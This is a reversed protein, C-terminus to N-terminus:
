NAILNNCIRSRTTRVYRGLAPSPPSANVSATIADAWLGQANLYDVVALNIEVPTRGEQTLRATLDNLAADIPARQDATMVRFDASGLTAGDRGYITWRYEGGPTLPTSHYAVQPVPLEPNGSWTVRGTTLDTLEIRSIVAGQWVFVPRTSFIAANANGGQPSVLCVGTQNGRVGGPLNQPPVPLGNPAQAPTQPIVQPTVEPVSSQALVSPSVLAACVASLGLGLLGKKARLLQLNM